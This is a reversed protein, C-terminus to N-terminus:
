FFNDQHDHEKPLPIGISNAVVYLGSLLPSVIRYYGDHRFNNLRPSNGFTVEYHNKRMADKYKQPFDRGSMPGTFGASCIPMYIKSKFLGEAFATEWEKGKKLDYQDLFVKVLRGSKTRSNNLSHYLQSM